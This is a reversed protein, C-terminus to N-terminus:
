DGMYKYMQLMENATCMYGKIFRLDCMAGMIFAAGPALSIYWEYEPDSGVTMETNITDTNHLLGNVYFNAQKESRDVTVGIWIWDGYHATFDYSNTYSRSIAGNNIYVEWDTDDKVLFGWTNDFGYSPGYYCIGRYIPVPAIEDLKIWACVSFDAAGVTFEETNHIVCYGNSIDPNRFRAAKRIGNVSDEWLQLGTAGALFAADAGQYEESLIVGAYGTTGEDLKWHYYTGGGIDSEGVEHQMHGMFNPM